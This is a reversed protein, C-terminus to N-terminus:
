RAGCGTAVARYETAQVAQEEQLLYHYGVMSATEGSVRVAIGARGGRLAATATRSLGTDRGGLTVM